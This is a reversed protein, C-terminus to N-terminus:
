RVSAEAKIKKHSCSNAPKLLHLFHIADGVKGEFTINPSSNM